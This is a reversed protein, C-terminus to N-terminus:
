KESKLKKSKKSKTETPETALGGQIFSAADKAAEAAATNHKQFKSKLAAVDIAGTSQTTAASTADRREHEPVTAQAEGRKRKKAPKGFRSKGASESDGGVVAAAASSSAAAASSSTSAAASESTDMDDAGEERKSKKKSKKSEKTEPEADEAAPEEAADKSKKSKKKKEKEAEPEAAHTDEEPAEFLADRAAKKADAKAEAAAAKEARAKSRKEEESLFYEGSELQADIKRPMQAPPFPTYEAEKAKLVDKPVKKRQVNKKKFQPLFREWNEEKLAPDAALEKKIMLIKINYIPHINKMCEVVIKRVAKLGHISGM